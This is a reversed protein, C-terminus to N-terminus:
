RPEHASALLTMGAAWSQDPALRQPTLEAPEVCVFGREGGDPVDALDHAAGPNWVVRDAFGDALVTLDGLLPDRVVVPGTVDRVALDVPGAAPLPGIPLVRTALARANDECLHGGVGEVSVERVDSVRLYAHLAATFELDDPGRNVAELRLDLRSGAAWATLRLEFAHPWLERTTEDDRIGFRVAAAGSPIECDAAPTAPLARWGRSRVLGHRPLPGRGSFQPFIVPVGGRLAGFSPAALPSLWLRDVEAGAPRWRVVQGGFTGAVLLAGDASTQNLEHAPASDQM